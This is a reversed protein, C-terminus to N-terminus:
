EPDKVAGLRKLLRVGRSARLAALRAALEAAERGHAELDARAAALLDASQRLALDLDAGHRVQEGLHAELAAVSARLAEAEARAGAFAAELNATHAELGAVREARRALEQELNSAHRELNGIREGRREGEAQLNAAHQELGAIRAARRETEAQAAHAREEARGAAQRARELDARLSAGEGRLAEAQASLESLAQQRANVVQKLAEMQRGLRESREALAKAHADLRVIREDRKDIELQLAEVRRELWAIRGARTALTAVFKECDAERQRLAARSAEAQLGFEELQADRWAVERDLEAVREALAQERTAEALDTSRSADGAPADGRPEVAVLRPRFGHGESELAARAADSGQLAHNLELLRRSREKLADSASQAEQKLAEIREQRRVIEAQLNEIVRQRHDREAKLNAAHVDKSGLQQQLVAISGYAEKLLDIGTVEMLAVMATFDSRRAEGPAALDAPDLAAAPPRRAALLYRYAPEANDSRYYSRNYYASVQRKLEALNPDADLYFSLGMMLLWRDLCGNPVAVVPGVLRAIARSTSPRDPLGHELHEGLFRHDMKLRHRLFGDLISEAEAVQPGDFPATLLLADRTVRALEKVFGARRTRAVHELTDLSVVVDFAGDAFPLAFAEALLQVEERRGERDVVVVQDRPLFAKLHGPSGGVDLIALRPRGDRIREVAEQVLKHRQYLDFPLSALAFPETAAAEGAPPAVERVTRAPRRRAPRGEPRPAGETKRSHSM